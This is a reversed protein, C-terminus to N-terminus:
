KGIMEQLSYSKEEVVRSVTQTNLGNSATQGREKMEKPSYYKEEAV